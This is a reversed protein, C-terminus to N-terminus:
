NQDVISPDAKSLAEVVPALALWWQDKPRANQQDMVRQFDEILSFKFDGRQLGIYLQNDDAKTEILELIKDVSEAALRTAFTRDFPSPDGGQQLHGLVNTRVSFLDGSEAQLVRRMFDATYIHHADESKVLLGLRKGREFAAILEQVDRNLEALTVGQEHTYIREAGTALGSLLALYGCRRGMVEVVFARNSAVASQKIKDVAHMINNLATDAGISLETGPLDNDITAPICVIPINFAPFNDRNANLQHAVKYGAIGGIILIGDFQHRDITQAISYLEPRPPQRRSTGLVSGGIPAWGNCSMWDLPMTWDNILGKIGRKVGVVEHGQDILLRAAARTGANMGPAPGGCNLIAIKRPQHNKGVEHPRARVLTRLIRFNRKFNEGRINLAEKFEQDRIANNCQHTEHVCQMLPKNVLRNNEIGIMMTEDGPQSELIHNTASWGLLSSLNRDFASPTGGRQVHGLITIRVEEQMREEIAKQLRTATIERGQRDIAGESLIVISDRRGEKRGELMINCMRDEWNDGNPPNEPILVWDAGTAIGAMLALYGCNRGMVEVIFARQHSAATSSIADVAETIRHLATDAGITIDTGCMDNDISGVLGVIHLDPNEDAQEASIQGTELLEAVLSSWESKFMNAGTLSGDGGIIVLRSIGKRILNRAAILRGSRERFEMCRATGIITGGRHIIGGVDDWNLPSIQDGGAVMGSYGDRIAYVEAGHALATRTVARVAANMGQADGGSTMVGIRTTTTMM